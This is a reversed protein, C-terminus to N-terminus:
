TPGTRSCPLHCSCPTRGAGATRAAPLGSSSPLPPPGLGISCLKVGMAVGRREPPLAANVLGTGYVLALGGGAGQLFRAAIMLFFHDAALGLLTGALMILLATRLSRRLGIRAWLYAAVTFSLATGLPCAAGSWSVDLTGVVFTGSLDPTAATICGMNLFTLMTCACAMGTLLRRKWAPVMTQLVPGSM